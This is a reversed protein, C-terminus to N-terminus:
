IAISKKQVLKWGSIKKGAKLAEKIASENPVLYQRPTLSADVEEVVWVNRVSSSTSTVELEATKRVATSVKAIKGNEFDEKIKNKKEEVEILYRTMYEKCQKETESILKVFPNFLAKIDNSVKKLPKTLSEEKDKALKALQKLAAINEAMKNYSVTDTIEIRNLKKLIPAAELKITELVIAADTKEVLKQDM